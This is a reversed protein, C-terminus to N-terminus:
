DTLPQQRHEKKKRFEKKKTENRMVGFGENLDLLMRTMGSRVRFGREGPIDKSHKNAEHSTM